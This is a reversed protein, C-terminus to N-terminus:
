LSNFEDELLKLEKKFGDISVAKLADFPFHKCYAADYERTNFECQVSGWGKFSVAKEWRDIHENARAILKLLETAREHAEKTM